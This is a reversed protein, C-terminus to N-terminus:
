LEGKAQLVAQIERVSEVPHDASRTVIAEAKQLRAPSVAGRNANLWEQWCLAVLDRPAVHRRLLTILGAHATRGTLHTSAPAPAPPPFEVGKRWLLLAACLALGVGVGMLHFHRALAVVSGSEAIGLHQEDFIIHTHSGIALSVLDFHNGEVTAVNTFDESGAFLVITGKGFAREVVMARNGIASLTTWGTTAAFYLTHRRAKDEMALRIDWQDELAEGKPLKADSPLYLTAVVRNGRRASQEMVRLYPESAGAFEAAPAALLLVTVDDPLYELARYNREVTIGPLADLSDYLLRAGRPDTRLTSFEPYVDGGTFQLNFLYIAAYVLVAGFFLAPLWSKM